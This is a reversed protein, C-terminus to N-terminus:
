ECVYEEAYNYWTDERDAPNGSQGFDVFDQVLYDVAHSGASCVGNVDLAGQSGVGDISKGEGDCTSVGWCIKNYMNDYAAAQAEDYNTGSTSEGVATWAGALAQGSSMAAIAAVLATAIKMTGVSRCRTSDHTHKM